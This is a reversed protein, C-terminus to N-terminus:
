FRGSLALMYGKQTYDYTVDLSDVWGAGIERRDFSWSYFANMVFTGVAAGALCDVITHKKAKIRELAVYCSPLYVLALAVEEGVRLLLNTERHPQWWDRLTHSLFAATAFAAAVHGAPRADNQSTYNSGDPRPVNWLPVTAERILTPVCMGLAFVTLRDLRLHWNYGYRDEPAPLLMSAMSLAIYGMLVGYNDLRDDVQFGNWKRVERSMEVDNGRGISFTAILLGYPVASDLVIRGAEGRRAATVPAFPELFDLGNFNRGPWSDGNKYPLFTHEETQASAPSALLLLLLVAPALRM